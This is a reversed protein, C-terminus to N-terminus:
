CTPTRRRDGQRDPRRQQGLRHGEDGDAGAEELLAQAAAVDPPELESRGYPCETTDLAEDYGIMGPPHVLLRAGDRRRVPPGAGAQRDRDNVAERVQPDDFPPVQHNMFFYYTSTTTFEEYRQTEPGDPGFREIM